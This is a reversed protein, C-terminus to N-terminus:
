SLSSWHFGAPSPRTVKTSSAKSKIACVPHASSTVRRRDQCSLNHGQVLVSPYESHRQRYQLLMHDLTDEKIHPSIVLLALERTGM